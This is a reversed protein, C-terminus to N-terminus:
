KNVKVKTVSINAVLKARLKVRWLEEWENVVETAKSKIQKTVGMRM